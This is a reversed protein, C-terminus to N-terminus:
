RAPIQVAPVVVTHSWPTCQSRGLFRKQCAEVSVGYMHRPNVNRVTFRRSAVEVGGTPQTREEWWQVNFADADPYSWVVTLSDATREVSVVCPRDTLPCHGIQHVPEYRKGIM